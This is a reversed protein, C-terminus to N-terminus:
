SKEEKDMEAVIKDTIDLDKDAYIVSQIEVKSTNITRNLILSLRESQAINKLVVLMHQSFENSLEEQKESVENSFETRLKEFEISKRDLTEKMERRTSDSLKEQKQEYEEDLKRIEDADIDLLKKRSEYYGRVIEQYKKGLMTKNYVTQVDVYAIKGDSAQANVAFLLIVAFFLFRKKILIVENIGNMRWKLPHVIPWKVGIGYKNGRSTLFFPLLTRAM